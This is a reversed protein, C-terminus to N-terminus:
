TTKAEEVDSDGLEGVSYGTERSEKVPEEEEGSHRVKGGLEKVPCTFEKFDEIAL